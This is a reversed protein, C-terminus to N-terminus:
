SLLAFHDCNSRRWCFNINTRRYDALYGVVWILNDCNTANIKEGRMQNKAFLSMIVNILMGSQVLSAIGFSLPLAFYPIYMPIKLGPSIQGSAIHGCVLNISQIFMLMSFVTVISNSILSVVKKAMGSLRDTVATLSIQTGDRLGLEMAVLALYVQTYRALEEYWGIPLKFINRNLVQLFEAVVMAVFVIVLLWEEARNAVRLFKRINKM